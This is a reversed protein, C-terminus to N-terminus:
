DHSGLIPIDKLTKDKIKFYYEHMWNSLNKKLVLNKNQLLYNKM